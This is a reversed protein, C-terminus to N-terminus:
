MVTIDQTTTSAVGVIPLTGAPAQPAQLTGKPALIIGIESVFSYIANALQAAASDAFKQAKKTSAQLMDAQVKAAIAPDASGSSVGEMEADLMAKMLIAKLQQELIPKAAQLTLGAM